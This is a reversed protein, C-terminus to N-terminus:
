RCTGMCGAGGDGGEVLARLSAALALPGLRDAAPASGVGCADAGLQKAAQLPARQLPLMAATPLRGPPVSRPASATFALPQFGPFPAPSGARQDMAAGAHAYMDFSPHKILGAPALQVFPERQLDPMYAHIPPGQMLMGRPAQGKSPRAGVGPAFAPAGGARAQPLPRQPLPRHIGVAPQVLYRTDHRGASPVMSLSVLQQNVVPGLVAPRWQGPHMTNVALQSPHVVAQSQARDKAVARGHQSDALTLASSSRRPAAHAQPACLRNGRGASAARDCEELLRQGQQLQQYLLVVPESLM